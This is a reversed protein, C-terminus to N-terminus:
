MVEGQIRASRALPPYTPQVRRILDGERMQSIRIPHSPPPPLAPLVPRAGDRFGNLVGSPDGNAVVGPLYPGSWGQAPQVDDTVPQITPPISSPQMLQNNRFNSQAVTTVRTRAQVPAPEAALRGVSVPTALRRLLPLGQPHLIPVIMLVAAMLVQLGLSTLTSWARRSREGWSTELTDAFM